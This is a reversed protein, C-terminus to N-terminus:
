KLDHKELIEKQKKGKHAIYNNKWIGYVVVLATIVEVISDALTEPADYGILAFLAVIAAVFRAISAKDVIM